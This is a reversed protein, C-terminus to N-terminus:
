RGRYSLPARKIVKAARGASKIPRKIAFYYIEAMERKEREAATSASM